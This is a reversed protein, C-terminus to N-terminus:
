QYIRLSAKDSVLPFHLLEVAPPSMLLHTLPQPILAVVRYFALFVHRRIPRQVNPLRNSYYRCHPHVSTQILIFLSYFLRLLGFLAAQFEEDHLTLVSDFETPRPHLKPRNQSKIPTLFPIFSYLIQQGRFNGCLFQGHKLPNGWERLYQLLSKQSRRFVLLEESHLM